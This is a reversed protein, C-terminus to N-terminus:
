KKIKQWNIKRHCGCMVLVAVSPEPFLDGLEVKVCLTLLLITFLLPTHTLPLPQKEGLPPPSSRTVGMMLDISYPVTHPLSPLPPYLNGGLCPQLWCVQLDSIARM